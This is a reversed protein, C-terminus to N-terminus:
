SEKDVGCGYRCGTDPSRILQLDNKAFSSSIIPSKQPFRGTFILCRIPRRWGTDPIKILQLDSKAFSGSIIPSKQPFHGTFILCRKKPWLWETDPSRISEACTGVGTNVSDLLMRVLSVQLLSGFVVFSVSLPSSYVDFSVWSLSV